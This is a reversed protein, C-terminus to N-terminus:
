NMAIHNDLRQMVALSSKANQSRNAEIREIDRPSAVVNGKTSSYQANANNRCLLGHHEENLASSERLAEVAADAAEQSVGDDNTIPTPTLVNSRTRHHDLIRAAAQNTDASIVDEVEITESQKGHTPSM